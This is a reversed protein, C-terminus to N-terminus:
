ARCASRPQIRGAAPKWKQPVCKSCTTSNIALKRRPEAPEGSKASFISWGSKEPPSMARAAVSAPSGAVLPLEHDEQLFIVM